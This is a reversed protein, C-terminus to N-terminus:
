RHHRGIHHWINLDSVILINQQCIVNISTKKDILTKDM